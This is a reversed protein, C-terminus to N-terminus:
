KQTLGNMSQMRGMNVSILDKKQTDFLWWTWKLWIWSGYMFIMYLILTSRHNNWVISFKDSWFNDIYWPHYYEINTLMLHLRDGPMLLVFKQIDGQYIHHMHTWLFLTVGLELFSAHNTHHLLINVVHVLIQWLYACKPILKPICRWSGPVEWGHCYMMM